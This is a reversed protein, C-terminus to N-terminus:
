RDSVRPPELVVSSAAAGGTRAPTVAAPSPAPLVVPAAGAEPVVLRWTVGQSSRVASWTLALVLILMGVPLWAWLAELMREARSSEIDPATGARRAAPVALFTSYLVAVQGVVALSVAIWFLANLFSPSM